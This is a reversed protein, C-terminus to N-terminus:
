ISRHKCLINYIVTTLPLQVNTNYNVFEMVLSMFILLNWSKTLM